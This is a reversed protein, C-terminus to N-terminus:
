LETTFIFIKFSSVKIVANLDEIASRHILVSDTYDPVFKCNGVEIQGQKLLLQVELNLNFRLREERLRHSFM